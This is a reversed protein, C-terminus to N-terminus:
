NFHRGLYHGKSMHAVDACATFWDLLLLLWGFIAPLFGSVIPM